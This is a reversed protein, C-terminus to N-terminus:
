DDIRKLQGIAPRRRAKVTALITYDFARACNQHYLYPIYSCLKKPASLMIEPKIFVTSVTANEDFTKGWHYRM